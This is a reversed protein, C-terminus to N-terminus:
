AGGVQVDGIRHTVAVEDGDRVDRGCLVSYLPEGTSADRVELYVDLPRSLLSRVADEAVQRGAETLGDM